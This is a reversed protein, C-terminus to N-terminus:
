EEEALCIRYKYNELMADPRVTCLMMMMVQPVAWVSLM